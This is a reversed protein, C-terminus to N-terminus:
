AWDVSSNPGLFYVPCDPLPPTVYALARNVKVKDLFHLLKRLRILRPTQPPPRCPCFKRNLARGCASRLTDAEAALHLSTCRVKMFSLLQLRRSDGSRMAAAAISDFPITAVLDFLFWGSLYDRAIERRDTILQGSRGAEAVATFFNFIIDLAFAATIANDLANIVPPTKPNLGVVFPVEVANFVVLILVLTDWCRRFRGTPDIYLWSPGRLRSKPVWEGLLRERIYRLRAAKWLRIYAGPSDRHARGGTIASLLRAALAVDEHEFDVMVVQPRFDFDFLPIRAASFSFFFLPLRESALYRYRIRFCLRGCCRRFCSSSCHTPLPPCHRTAVPPPPTGVSRAVGWLRQGPPLDSRGKKHGGHESGANGFRGTTSTPMHAAPRSRASGGPVSGVSGLLTSQSAASAAPPPGPAQGAEAQTGGNAPAATFGSATAPSSASADTPAVRGAAVRMMFNGLRLSAAPAAGAGGPPPELTRRRQAGPGLLAAPPLLPEDAALPQAQPLRGARSGVMYPNSAALAAGAAAAFHLNRGKGGGGGIGGGSGYSSMSRSLADVSRSFASRDAIPTRPTIPLETIPDPASSAEPQQARHRGSPRISTAPEVLPATPSGPEVLEVRRVRRIANPSNGEGATHRPGKHTVAPLRLESRPGGGTAGSGVGVPAGAALRPPVSLQCSLYYVLPGLSAIHYVGRCLSGRRPSFSSPGLFLQLSKQMSFMRGSQVCCTLCPASAEVLLCSATTDPTGKVPLEPLCRSQCYDEGNAPPSPM